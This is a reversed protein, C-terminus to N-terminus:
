VGLTTLERLEDLAAFVRALSPWYTKNGPVFSKYRLQNSRHQESLGHLIEITNTTVTVAMGGLEGLLAALNHRHRKRLVSEDFGRKLLAAKLFLEAAHSALFYLPRAELTKPHGTEDLDLGAMLKKAATCFSKGNLYYAVALSAPDTPPEGSMVRITVIERL